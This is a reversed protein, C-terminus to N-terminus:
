QTSFHISSFHSVDKVHHCQWSSFWDWTETKKKVVSIVNIFIFNCDKYFLEIYNQRWHKNLYFTKISHKDDGQSKSVSSKKPLLKVIALRISVWKGKEEGNLKMFFIPGNIENQWWNRPNLNYQGTIKPSLTNQKQLNWRWQVPRNRNYEKHMRSCTNWYM